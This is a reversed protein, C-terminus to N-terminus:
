HPGTNHSGRTNRNDRSDELPPAGCSECRKESHLTGCYECRCKLKYPASMFDLDMIFGSCSIGSYDIKSRPKPKPIPKPPYKPIEPIRAGM